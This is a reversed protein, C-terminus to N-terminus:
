TGGGASTACHTEFRGVQPDCGLDLKQALLPQALPRAAADVEPKEILTLIADANLTEPERTLTVTQEGVHEHEGM